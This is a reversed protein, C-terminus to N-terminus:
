PSAPPGAKTKGVLYSGGGIKELVGTEELRNAMTLVDIPENKGYLELMIEFIYQHANKYFDDADVMDAIKIMADKDLLISGLLSKEAELNQPPIKETQTIDTM